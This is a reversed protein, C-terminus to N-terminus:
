TSKKEERGPIREPYKIRGHHYSILGKIITDEVTRLECLTIGSEDFQEDELRQQSLKRVLSEIKAPAPDVLSRCASECADTLMLVVAEKTQPRSCPYRFSSEEPPPLNEELAKKCAEAYFYQVLTTGHHQEILDVIQKPLKYQKALDIGNKVHALIILASMSPELSNHPSDNKSILNEAYYNPKFIKGIDHYYAAARCLLGNADIADAANEAITGLAISHSYTSPARNILENLLPNSVDCLELLRVDSLVGFWRELLPIMAQIVLGALLLEVANRFGREIMDFQFPVGMQIELCCSLVFATFMGLIGIKVFQLRGQLRALPLISVHLVSLYLFVEWVPLGIAIALFLVQIGALIVAVRRHYQIAMAQSYLVLPFLGFRMTDTSLAIAGSTTVFSLALLWLMRSMETMIRPEALVIYYIAPALLLIIFVSVAITRCLRHHWSRAALWHANEVRLLSVMQPTLSTGVLIGNEVTASILRQSIEYKKEITKVSEEASKIAQQTLTIDRKLNSDWHRCVWNFIYDAEDHMNLAERLSQRIQENGEIVHPALSVLQRSEPVVGGGEPARDVIQIQGQWGRGLPDEKIESRRVLGRECYQEMVAEIKSCMENVADERAAIEATSPTPVPTPV